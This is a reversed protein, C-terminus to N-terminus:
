DSWTIVQVGRSAEVNDDFDSAVVLTLAGKAHLFEKGYSSGSDVTMYRELNLESSGFAFRIAYAGSPRLDFGYLPVPLTLSYGTGSAELEVKQVTATSGLPTAQGSVPLPDDATYTVTVPFSGGPTVVGSVAFPSEPTSTLVLSDLFGVNGSIPIPRESDYLGLSRDVLQVPFVEGPHVQGSIAFPIEPTSVLTTTVSDLFGM